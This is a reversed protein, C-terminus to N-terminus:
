TQYNTGVLHHSERSNQNGWKEKKSNIAMQQKAQGKSQKDEQKQKVKKKGM